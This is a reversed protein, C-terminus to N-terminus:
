RLKTLPARAAILRRRGATDFRVDVVPNAANGEVVLVEGDGFSAHRLWDGVQWPADPGAATSTGPEGVSGREDRAELTLSQGVRQLYSGIMEPERVAVGTESGGRIAQDIRMCDEVATEDLFRSPRHDGGDQVLLLQERARTIAVYYLRREEELREPSLPNDRSFHPFDEENLGWVVVLPWELGKAGHVTSILVGDPRNEVPNRLLEIFAEPDNALEGAQEILVDLLRVDDDGKERRAASRRLVKEADIADVVHELLKAPPWAVLKPLECLLQWRRKLHRRQGPKLGALVSAERAPWQQTRALEDVLRRVRDQAVFTTPQSFLLM